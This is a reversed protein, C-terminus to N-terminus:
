LYNAAELAPAISPLNIKRRAVADLLRLGRLLNRMISDTRSAAGSIRTM